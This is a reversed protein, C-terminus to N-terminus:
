FSGVFYRKQKGKICFQYNVPKNVISRPFFAKVVNKKSSTCSHKGCCLFVRKKTHMFKSNLLMPQLFQPEHINTYIKRVSLGKSVKQTGKNRDHARSLFLCNITLM